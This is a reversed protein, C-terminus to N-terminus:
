RRGKRKKLKLTLKRTVTRSHRRPDKVKSALRVGDAEDERRVLQATSM